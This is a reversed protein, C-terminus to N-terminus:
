RYPYGYASVGARRVTAPLAAASVSPFAREGMDRGSGLDATNGTVMMRKTSTASGM